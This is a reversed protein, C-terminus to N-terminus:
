KILQHRHTEADHSRLHLGLEDHLGISPPPAGKAVDPAVV